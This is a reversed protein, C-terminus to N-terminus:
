RGTAEPLSDLAMRIAAMPPAIPRRGPRRVMADEALLNECRARLARFQTADDSHDFDLRGGAINYSSQRELLFQLLKEIQDVLTDAVQEMEYTEVMRAAPEGAEDRAPAGAPKGRRVAALQRLEEGTQRVQVRYTEFINGADQLTRKGHWLREPITIENPSLLRYFGISTLDEHMRASLADIAQDLTLRRLTGTASPASAVSSAPQTWYATTSDPANFAV